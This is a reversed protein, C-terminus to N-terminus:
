RPMTVFAAVFVMTAGQVPWKVDSLQVAASVPVQVVAGTMFTTLTVPEVAPM